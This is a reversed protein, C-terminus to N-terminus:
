PKKMVVAIPPVRALEVQLSVKARRPAFGGKEFVVDWDGRGMGGLMWKGKADSTGDISGTTGPLTAKVAVDTLPAGGEDTVTGEIRGMGRLQGAMQGGAVTALLLLVLGVKKM